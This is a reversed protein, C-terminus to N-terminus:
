LLLDVAFLVMTVFALIERGWKSKFLQVDNVDNQHREHLRLCIECTTRTNENSVKFLYIGVPFEKGRKTYFGSNKLRKFYHIGSGM